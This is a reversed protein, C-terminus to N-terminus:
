QVLYLVEKISSLFILSLTHPRKSLNKKHKFSCLLTLCKNEAVLRKCILLTNAKSCEHNKDYTNRIYARKM